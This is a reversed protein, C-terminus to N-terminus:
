VDASLFSLTLVGSGSLNKMAFHKTDVREWELTFYSNLFKDERYGQAM